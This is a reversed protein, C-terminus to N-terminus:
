LSAPLSSSTRKSMVKERAGEAARGSGATEKHRSHLCQELAVGLCGGDRGNPNMHCSEM